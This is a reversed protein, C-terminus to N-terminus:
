TQLSKKIKVENKYKYNIDYIYIRYNSDMAKNIDELIKIDIDKFAFQLSKSVGNIRTICDDSAILGLIYAKKETDIKEFFNENVYYEKKLCGCHTQCRNLDNLRLNYSKVIVEKGCNHCKCLYEQGNVKQLVELFGFMSGVKNWRKGRSVEEKSKKIIQDNRKNSGM